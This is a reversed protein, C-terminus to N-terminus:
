YLDAQTIKEDKEKCCKYKNTGQWVLFTRRRSEIIIVRDSVYQKRVGLKWLKFSSSSQFM